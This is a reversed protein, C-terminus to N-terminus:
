STLTMRRTAVRQLVEDLYTRKREPTRYAQGSM